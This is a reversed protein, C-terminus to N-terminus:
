IGMLKRTKICTSVIKCHSETKWIGCQLNEIGYRWERFSIVYYEDFLMQIITQQLLIQKFIAKSYLNM